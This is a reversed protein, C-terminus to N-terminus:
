EEVDIDFLADEDSDDCDLLHLAKTLSLLFEKLRRGPM